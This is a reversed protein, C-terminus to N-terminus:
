CLLTPQPHTLFYDHAVNTNVLYGLVVDTAFDALVVGKCGDLKVKSHGADGQEGVIIIDCRYAPNQTAVILSYM